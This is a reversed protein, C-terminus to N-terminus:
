SPIQVPRTSGRRRSMVGPLVAGSGAGPVDIKPDIGQEALSTALAALDADDTRSADGLLRGEVRQAGASLALEACASATGQDNRPDASLIVHPRQTLHHNVFNIRQAYADPATTSATAPFNLIVPRDTSAEWLFTMSDCVELTFDAEAPGFGGVSYQFRVGARGGACRMMDEGAARVLGLLTGHDIHLENGLALPTTASLHVVARDLGAISEFTRRIRDRHAPTFVSLTVHDPILDERLLTRVFSFDAQSLAPQGVAIEKCGAAVLQRFVRRRRNLTTPDAPMVPNHRLDVPVWEPAESLDGRLSKWPARPNSRVKM